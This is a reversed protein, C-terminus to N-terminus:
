LCVNVRGFSAIGRQALFAVFEFSGQGRIGQSIFIDRRCQLKPLVNDLPHAVWSELVLPANQFKQAHLYCDLIFFRTDRTKHRNV